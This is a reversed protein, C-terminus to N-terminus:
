ELLKLERARILAQTRSHVQLKGYIQNLYWRVTGVSLFLQQAVERTSLGSHLLRLIELERAILSEPLPHATLNNWSQPKLVNTLPRKARLRM